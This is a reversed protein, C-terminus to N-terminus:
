ARAVGPAAPRRKVLKKPFRFSETATGARVSEWFRVLRQRREILEMLADTLQSEASMTPVVATCGVLRAHSLARRMVDAM